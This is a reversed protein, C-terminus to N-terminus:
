PHLTNFQAIYARIRKANVGLDSVGARSASRLDIRSGGEKATIRIAIDDVFGFIRSRDTAQIIGEAPAEQEIRWELARATNLAQAYAKAPPMTTELPKIDAYAQQQQQAVTPGAYLVSNENSGRQQGGFSLKPPHVTDTTIDHIPPCKAANTGMTLISFLVPLSILLAMLCHRSAGRHKGARLKAFLILMSLFGIFVVVALLGAMLLLAPRWSLWQLRFALIAVVSLFLGLLEFKWLWSTRTTQLPHEGKFLHTM